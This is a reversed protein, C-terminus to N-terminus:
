KLLKLNNMFDRSIQCGRIGFTILRYDWKSKSYIYIFDSDYMKYVMKGNERKVKKIKYFWKKRSISKQAEKFRNVIYGQKDDRETDYREEVRKKFHETVYIAM